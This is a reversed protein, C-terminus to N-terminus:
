RTQGGGEETLEQVRLNLHQSLSKTVINLYYKSNTKEVALPRDSYPGPEGVTCTKAHTISFSNIAVSHNCLLVKQIALPQAVIAKALHLSQILDADVPHSSLDQHLNLGKLEKGNCPETVWQANFHKYKTRESQVLGM